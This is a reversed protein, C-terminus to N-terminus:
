SKRKRHSFEEEGDELTRDNEVKKYFWVIWWVMIPLIVTLAMSAFFMRQWNQINLLAFVLSLVYMLVLVVVATIAMIQKTRKM